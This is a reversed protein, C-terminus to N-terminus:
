ESKKRYPDLELGPTRLWSQRIMEKMIYWQIGSVNFRDMAWVASQARQDRINLQLREIDTTLIGVIRAGWCRLVYYQSLDSPGSWLDLRGYANMLAVISNPFSCYEVLTEPNPSGYLGCHCHLGITGKIACKACQAVIVKDPEWIFDRQQPSYFGRRDKDFCITKLFLTTM